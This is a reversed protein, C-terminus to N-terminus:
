RLEPDRTGADDSIAAGGVGHQPDVDAPRTIKPWELLDADHDTTTEHQRELLARSGNSSTRRRMQGGTTATM